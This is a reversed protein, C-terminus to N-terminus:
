ALNDREFFTPESVPNSQPETDALEHTRCSTGKTPVGYPISNKVLEFLERQHYVRKLCEVLNKAGESVTLTKM